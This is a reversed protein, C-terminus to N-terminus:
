INDIKIPKKPIAMLKNIGSVFKRMYLWFYLTKNRKVFMSIGIKKVLLIFSLHAVYQMNCIQMKESRLTQAERSQTKM